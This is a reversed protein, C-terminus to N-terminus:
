NGPFVLTFKMHRWETLFLSVQDLREKYTESIEAGGMKRRGDFHEMAKDKIRGHESELSATNLYPKDGGCVNEM